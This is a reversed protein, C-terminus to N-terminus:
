RYFVQLLALQGKVLMEQFKKKVDDREFLSKATLGQQQTQLGNAM